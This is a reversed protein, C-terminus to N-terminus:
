GVDRAVPDAIRFTSCRQRSFGGPAANASYTACARCAVLPSSASGHCSQDQVGANEYRSSAPRNSRVHEVALVVHNERRRCHGFVMSAQSAMVHVLSSLVLCPKQVLNQVLHGHHVVVRVDSSVVGRQQAVHMTDAGWSSRM